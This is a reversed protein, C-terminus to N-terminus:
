HQISKFIKYINSLVERTTHYYLDMKVKKIYDLHFLLVISIKDQLTKTVNMLHQPDINQIWHPHTSLKLLGSVIYDIAGPNSIKCQLNTQGPLDLVSINYVIDQFMDEPTNYLLLEDRNETDIHYKNYFEVLRIFDIHNFPKFQYCSGVLVLQDELFDHMTSLSDSIAKDLNNIFIQSKTLKEM